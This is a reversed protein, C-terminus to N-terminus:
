WSCRATLRSGSRMSWGDRTAAANANFTTDQVGNVLSYKRINKTSGGFYGGVYLTTGSVHFTHTQDTNSAFTNDETGDTNFRKIGSLYSGVIIKGDTQVAIGLVQSTFAPNSALSVLAGSSDLVAFKTRTVGGVSTFDGGIAVNGNPLEAVAYVANDPGTGPNFGAVGGAASYVGLGAAFSTFSGQSNSIVVDYTGADANQVNALNLSASSAGPINVSNKRWQFALPSAGTANVTFVVSSGSPASQAQPHGAIVPEARVTLGAVRSTKSGSNNSVIVTYNGADNKTVSNLTLTASTQGSLPNGDKLWQYSVSSTGIAAATFQASQGVDVTLPQPHGTIALLVPDGNLQVLNAVTTGNYSGFAGGAWINGTPTIHLAEIQGTNFGTGIDFLLDNAGDPGIRIIRSRAATNFTTFSGALVLKADYQEEMAWVTGTGSPVGSFATDTTGDANLKVLGTVPASNASGFFGAVLIKGEELVRIRYVYNNFTPTFASDVSGNPNVRALYAKGAIVGQGGILIKGDPQVAVDWGYHNASVNFTTDVTGNTNLRAAYATGSAGAVQSFQGVLLVRGDAQLAVGYVVNNPGTGANFTNDLTGDANLRAVRNATASNVQTFSGAIVFKGDPQVAIDYISNNVNAVFSSVVAGDPTMRALRNHTEGRFTTFDGGIVLDGGPLPQIARVVGSPGNVTSYTDKIGGPPIIVTVFINRSTDSGLDNSITVTYIGSDGLEANSISLTATDAGSIRGGNNIVGNDKRWVYTLPARGQVAVNLTIGGHTVALYSEPPESTIIPEALVTVLAPRSSATGFENSVDVSYSGADERSVSSLTLNSSTQGSLPNGNKFWQYTVSTSTFVGVNLTTTGGLNVAASQPSSTVAPDSIDTNCVTIKARPSTFNGGFYLFGDPTTQLDFVTGNPNTPVFFPDVTGDSKFRRLRFPNSAGGVVIKGNLQIDVVRVDSLILTAPDAFTTDLSGDSNLRALRSRAVGGVTTFNGGIVVRGLDDVDFGFITGPITTPAFASDITLDANLRAIQQFSQTGLQGFSGALYVKGDAMVKMRLVSGSANLTFATDLSGDENLRAFRQRPSTFNGGVLIKGDPLRAVCQVDANFAPNVFSTDVTGDANLRALRGYTSGQVATFDGGMLVKGEPLLEFDYVAIGTAGGPPNESWGGPM